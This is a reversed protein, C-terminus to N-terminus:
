YGPSTAIRKIVQGWWSSIFGTIGANAAWSVQRAITTEDSSTYQITPLDSMHCSCWDSPKYWMYYFALVPRNPNISSAPISAPAPTSTPTLTQQPSPFPTPSAEVSPTSTPQRSRQLPSVPPNQCASLLLCICILALIFTQHYTSRNAVITKVKTFPMGQLGNRTLLLYSCLQFVHSVCQFTILTRCTMRM